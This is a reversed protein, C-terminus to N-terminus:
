LAGVAGQDVVFGDLPVLQVVGIDNGDSTVSNNEAITRRRDGGRHVVCVAKIVGHHYGFRGGGGICSGDGRMNPHERSFRRLLVIGDGFMDRDDPAIGFGRDPQGFPKGGLGGSDNGSAGCLVKDTGALAPFRDEDIPFGDCTLM